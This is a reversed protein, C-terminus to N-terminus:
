GWVKVERGALVAPPGNEQGGGVLCLRITSFGGADASAPSEDTAAM